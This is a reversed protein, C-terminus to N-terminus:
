AKAVVRQYIRHVRKLCMSFVILLHVLGAVALASAVPGLVSSDFSQYVVLFVSVILAWLVGWLANSFTEDILAHDLEGLRRDSAAYNHALPMTMAIALMVFAFALVTMVLGGTMSIVAGCYFVVAASGVMLAIHRAM